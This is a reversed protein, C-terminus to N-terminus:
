RADHPPPSSNVIALLRERTMREVIEPTVDIGLHRTCACVEAVCRGITDASVTVFEEALRLRAALALM